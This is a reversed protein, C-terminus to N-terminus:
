VVSDHPHGEEWPLAHHTNNYMDAHAEANSTRVVIPLAFAESLPALSQYLNRM